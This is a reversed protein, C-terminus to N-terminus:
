LADFAPTMASVFDSPLSSAPKSMETLQMVGAAALVAMRSCHVGACMSYMSEFIGRLRKRSTSSTAAMTAHSTDASFEKVM